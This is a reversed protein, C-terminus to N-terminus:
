AWQTQGTSTNYYYLRGTHPDTATRWQSQQQPLAAQAQQTIQYAMPNYLGMQPHYTQQQQQQDRRALSQRLRENMVRELKAAEERAEAARRAKRRAESNMGDKKKVSGKGEKPKPGFKMRNQEDNAARIAQRRAEEEKKKRREEKKKRDKEVGEEKENLLKVAFQHEGCISDCGRCDDRYYLDMWATRRTAAMNYKRKAEDLRGELKARDGEKELEHYAKNETRMQEWAPDEQDLDRLWEKIHCDAGDQDKTPICCRMEGANPCDFPDGDQNLLNKRESDQRKQRCDKKKGGRQTKTKQRRRRRRRQRTKRAKRRFSRRM